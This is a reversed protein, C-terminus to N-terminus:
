APRRMAGFLAFSVAIGALTALMDQWDFVLAHSTMQVCEWGILGLASVAASARFRRGVAAPDALPKMDLWAALAVFTIAIAAAFNPGVGILYTSVEGQQLHHQRAWQLASLLALGGLGVLGFRTSLKM